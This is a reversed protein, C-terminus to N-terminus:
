SQISTQYVFLVFVCCNLIATIFFIFRVSQKKNKHRLKQQAVLAGPWGGILSLFHLFSEPTRWTGILAASKDNQYVSYTIMSLTLYLIFLTLSVNYKLISVAIIMFFISASIISLLGNNSKNQQLKEGALTAKIVCRRGQKDSGTSYTIDQGVQPRYSKNNFAGIHIFIQKGELSPAVFGYGKNDNWSVIKGNNHM